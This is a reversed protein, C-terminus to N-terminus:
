FTSGRRDTYAARPQATASKPSFSAHLEGLARRMGQYQQKGLLQQFSRELNDIAEAATSITDLGKQTPVVLKARRDEPEPRREVYGKSELEDILEVMSPRSMGARDALTSLRTGDADINALVAGYKPRFDPHGGDRLAVILRREFGQYVHLLLTGTNLGSSPSAGAQGTRESKEESTRNVALLNGM